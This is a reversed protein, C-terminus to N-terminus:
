DEPSLQIVLVHKMMSDGGNYAGNYSVSTDRVVQM